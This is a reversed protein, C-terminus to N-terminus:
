GRLTAAAAVEADLVLGLVALREAVVLVERVDRRPLEVADAGRRREVLFRELELVDVEGLAAVLLSSYRFAAHVELEADPALGAGVGGPRELVDVRGVDAGLHREELHEVHQVVPQDGVAVLRDGEVM